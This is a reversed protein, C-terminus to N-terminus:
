LTNKEYYQKLGNKLRNKDDEDLLPLDFKVLLLAIFDIKQCATQYDLDLIASDLWIDFLLVLTESLEKPYQCTLKNEKIEQRIITEIYKAVVTLSHKLTELLAFPIKEVWHLRTLEILSRNEFFYTIISKFKEQASLQQNNTLNDLSQRLNEIESKIQFDLIDQKSSFHHYIAGKSRGSNLVIEQMTTADYGKELFLAMATQAITKKSLQTKEEQKM